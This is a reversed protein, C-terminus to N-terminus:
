HASLGSGRERVRQEEGWEHVGEGEREKEFLEKKLFTV